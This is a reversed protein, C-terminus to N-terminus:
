TGDIAGDVPDSGYEANLCRLRWESNAYQVISLSLPPIDLHWFTPPSADLVHLIAARIVAPDAVILVRQLGLSKAEEGTKRVDGVGFRIRTPFSWIAM